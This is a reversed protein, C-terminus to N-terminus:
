KFHVEGTELHYLAPIVKIDGSKIKKALLPSRLSLDKIIGDVNAWAEAEFNKSHSHSGKFEKLRPHLDHVLHNLNESGADAGDMTSLAAKIAGCNTHGMVVMNRPGLHEVAYEMSAIASPDIAEGATRVTFIEGLKQDFVIEPPVRSDSCSLVISHPTQGESLKKIDAQSAGDNRFFGKKFRANGNKLWKMAVEPSVGAPHHHDDGSKKAFSLCTFSLLLLLFTKKL